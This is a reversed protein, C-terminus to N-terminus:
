PARTKGRSQNKNQHIERMIQDTVAEIRRSAAGRPFAPAIELGPLPAAPHGNIAPPEPAPPIIGSSRTRSTGADPEPPSPAPKDTDGGGTKGADSDQRSKETMRYERLLPILLKHLEQERTFTSRDCKLLEGYVREILTRLIELRWEPGSPHSM